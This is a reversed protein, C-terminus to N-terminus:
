ELPRELQSIMDRAIEGSDIRLNIAEETNHNAYKGRDAYFRLAVIAKELRKALEVVDTRSHAIFQRNEETDYGAAIAGQFNDCYILPFIDEPAEWPGPTAKDARDLCIQAYTKMETDGFNIAFKM